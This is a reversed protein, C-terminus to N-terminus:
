NSGWLIRIGSFEPQLFRPLAIDLEGDGDLDEVLLTVGVAVEGPVLLRPERAFVGPALQEILWVEGHDAANVTPAARFTLIDLDGDNDLDRLRLRPTAVRTIAPYVVTPALTVVDYTGARSRLQVQIVGPQFSGLADVTVLDEDGDGDIDSAVLAASGMNESVSPESEFVGSGLGDFSYLLDGTTVLGSAGVLLDLDGDGDDDATLLTLPNSRVALNSTDVVDLRMALAFDGPVVSDYALVTAEQNKATLFELVGDRDWDSVHLPSITNLLPNIPNIDPAVLTLPPAFAGGSEQMFIQVTNSVTFVAIIDRDGDQDLDAAEIRVGGDTVGPGGLVIPASGFLRPSAQSYVQVNSAAFLGFLGGASAALDLAGDGNFDGAVVDNTGDTVGANAIETVEATFNPMGRIGSTALMVVNTGRDVYVLDQDGDGDVDAIELGQHNGNYGRTAENAGSGILLARSEFEGPATAFFVHVGDSGYAVVDLLADRNMDVAEVEFLGETTTETGRLILPVPDFNRPSTQWFVTVSQAHLPSTMGLFGQSFAGHAALVDLDGDEDLDAIALAQVASTTFTTAVLPDPLGLTVVNADFDSEPGQFHLTINGAYIQQVPSSLPLIGAPDGDNAVCLDLLGDGDIDASVVDRAGTTVSPGGFLQAASFAGTPGQAYISVFNHVELAGDDMALSDVSLSPLAAILDLDGDGDYDSASLQAFRAPLQDHPLGALLEPVQAFQATGLGRFLEINGDRLVHGLDVNGDDDLDIILLAAGLSDGFPVDIPVPPAFQGPGTQLSVRSEAGASTVVDLDGDGDFDVVSPTVTRVTEGGVVQSQDDIVTSRVGVTSTLERAISIESSTGVEADFAFARFFFEGGRPADASDWAFVRDVGLPSTAYTSAQRRVRWLRPGAIPPALSSDLSVVNTTPPASVIRRRQEVGGMATVSNSVRDTIVRLGHAGTAVADGSDLAALRYIFANALGDGTLDHPSGLNVARLERMGPSPEVVALVRTGTDDVAVGRPGPFSLAPVPPAAVPAQPALDRVLRSDLNVAVIRDTAHEAVFVTGPTLPDCCVGWPTALGAVVVSATAAGAGFRVDLLADEVTCLARSRSVAAVGRIGDPSTTTGSATALAVGSHMEIRDVQWENGTLTALFLVEGRPALAAATPTGSGTALLSQVVGTALEIRQVRWGTSNPADVVLAELGEGLPLTAVVGVVPNTTWQSALPVPLQAPRLVDLDRGVLEPTAIAIASTSLEPLRVSTANVAELRGSVYSSVPTCIQHQRRLAPDAQLAFVAAPDDTPLPPFMDGPRRWQFVVRVPDSEADNVRFPIAIGGVRDTAALSVLGNDLQLGPSSNNDIRFPESVTPAGAVLDDLATLRLRITREALPLDENADWFFNVTTGTPMASVGSIAYAPTSGTAAPRALQWNGQGEVEYEVMVSVVDTSTDSVTITIPVVGTIEASPVVIADIEPADNGLGIDVAATAGAVVATPPGQSSLIRGFVTVGDLFGGAPDFGPEAAFDWAVDYTTGGASAAYTSPNAAGQLATAPHTTGDPLEYLLELEVDDADADILVFRILAPSTRTNLVTFASMSSPSEQAGSSSDDSLGSVVAGLGANCGALACALGVCLVVVLPKWRLRDM